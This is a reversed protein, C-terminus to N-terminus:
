ETPPPEEDAGGFMFELGINVMFVNQSYVGESNPQRSPTHLTEATGVNNTDREIYFVNSALLSAVFFDTFPYRAGIGVTIKEHDLLAPELTDDPIANSDYGTGLQLELDGLYYSAGLRVGFSDEWNRGLNQIVKTQNEENIQEGTEDVACVTDIDGDIDNNVICQNEFASWRTYDGFLRLEIDTTPRYRFGLRIIDPLSQTVTVPNQSPTSIALLNDLTGELRMDGNINPRTQYSAGVWFADELPEWMFGFGLGFDTSDAVLWSRGEKLGGDPSTLDDTGDSNRARITDIESLYLNGAFGFALRISEIQYAVGLTLAMTRITGEIAYWRQPGDIAGPYGEVPNVDDWVTQGGFPVYFAVGVALPIDLGFDTVFGAFPNTVFNAVSGTGSNALVEGDTPTPNSISSPDRDYTVTRYALVADLLVRHGSDFAIGAPNYYLATPNSTTPHGLEGGFRAVAIGAATATSIQLFLVATLVAAFSSHKYGSKM